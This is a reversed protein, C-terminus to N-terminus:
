QRQDRRILCKQIRNSRLSSALFDLLSRVPSPLQQLAIDGERLSPQHIVGMREHDESLQFGKILGQLRNCGLQVTQRLSLSLPRM